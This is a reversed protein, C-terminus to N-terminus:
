NLVKVNYGQIQLMGIKNLISYHIFNREDTLEDVICHQVAYFTDLVWENDVVIEIAYGEGFPPYDEYYIIRAQKM